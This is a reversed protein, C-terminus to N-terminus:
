QERSHWVALLEYHRDLLCKGFTWSYAYGLLSCNQDQYQLSNSHWHIIYFHVVPVDVIM